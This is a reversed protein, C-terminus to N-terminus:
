SSLLGARPFWVLPLRIGLNVVAADSPLYFDSADASSDVSFCELNCTSLKRLIPALAAEFEITRDYLASNARSGYSLSTLASFLARYTMKSKEAQWKGFSADDPAM